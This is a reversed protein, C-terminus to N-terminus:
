KVGYVTIRGTNFPNTGATELARFGTISDTSKLVQIGKSGRFIQSDSRSQQAISYTYDTNSNIGINRYISLDKMKSSETVNRAGVQQCM